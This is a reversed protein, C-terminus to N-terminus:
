PQVPDPKRPTVVRYMRTGPPNPDTVVRVHNTARAVLDDLKTWAGGVIGTYEVTYTKNSKAGFWLTTVGNMELGDVRLYSAPDRPDTGSNYEDLNSVKDGDLDLRADALNNTNLGQAVEYADPLGDRDFDALVTLRFLSSGLGITPTVTNKVVARYDGADTLQINSLVFFDKRIDLVNSVIPTSGKRWEFGFPPPGGRIEASFTVRGGEPASQGVPQQVWAPTIIVGLVAVQSTLPGVGDTVVVTYNGADEEQANAVTLMRNTAGPIEVDNFRWQYTIPTSSTATVSFTVTVGPSVNTSQPQQTIEAPILLTLTANSSLIAAVPNGVEVSYVGQQALQVNPLSLISNTASGLNLGNFRWQYTFPGEGGPTVSFFVDSYAVATRNQPQQLITPPGLVSLTASASALSGHDDSVLVSYNGSDGTQVNTLTLFSNTAGSINVVNRRWQYRLAGTGAAFVTFSVDGGVDSTRSQPQTLITLPQNVRLVAGTSIAFGAANRVVVAYEGAGSAPVSALVFNVNTAGSIAAGNFRWQYLLPATGTATVDFMANAGATVTQGQPQVTIAPANLRDAVNRPNTGDLFEEYNTRGDSDADANADGPSNQDFSNATEYSDPMGDADTDTFGAGPVNARGPTPAGGKWNVPDNGYEHPRRRQLADGAGDPSVPWPPTDSYSVRDVQIYPVLGADPGPGQPADPRNLKIEEASNDLKGLYPGHIPVSVPLGYTARFAALAAANTAPNFSVVLLYGRAPLTVNTPFNFDAGGRLHWTNTAFAPDFLPVANSTINFLEIFEDNVNDNTGGIDPPHYAIENIVVPGVLPASNPLGTGTRFAAVTGPSDVGFTRQKMATFDRGVSTEYRGFSVGNAAPGFDVSSRYGTLNGAGAAASLYVQDGNASSLSFPVVPNNSNFAQEYFVQFGQPAVVTGNPIRYKKFDTKADSLFWGGIDVPQTTRNFVEIADELPDDTHSIVENVIVTGLADGGARGPSGSAEPSARWNVPDNLNASPDIAELSSGSGDAEIPWAGSTGYTVSLFVVGNTDSLEITEGANDLRGGYNGPALNLGATNYRSAFATQSKVVVLFQKPGLTTPGFTYDIGATFRVGTLDLAGNGLNVLEVFEYDSGGVPNYMIESIRLNERLDSTASPDILIAYDFETKIRQATDTALFMGAKAGASGAPLGVSHLPIWVDNLFQEFFLTNGARRIRIEVESLNLVTTRLLISPAAATIRRVNLANGDEIGFVYRVASGSEIIEVLAGAFYDGFVQAKLGVKTLFAWDTLQPLARWVLPYQPSAAALPFARDNLVQLVLNGPEETLSYYSGAFHNRRLSVNQLNWFRELRTDTFPTFGDPAYVAAERQILTSAAGADRGTVAFLYLGPHPFIATAQDLQSVNLQADAPAVSWTFALPTGDPDYSASADLELADLVSVHWSKPSAKLVMVPPANGTKTVTITDTHLIVGNEDVANLTLLNAGTRLVINTVTWTNENVWFSSAEPHGAVDVRFVRLPATGTLSATNTGVSFPNGSNSTIDYVTTRNAGLHTYAPGERNVFWSQYTTSVDYQSSAAEEAALWATMRASNRAFNELLTALYHKYLRLNYPKAIYPPFGPVGAYFAAATNGFALDSDWHFFMFRGDTSRRYFYGNKGRDRTFSDWDDIYGRIATMKMTAIPDILREIAPQTYTNETITKFFNILSTYDYENERTRKMWESHYRGPNDTGKYSWDSNRQSRNWDDQFWWEDDIRYLEGQAGNEYVRDLLDNGLPEVEERLASGGNNVEVLFYEHENAPHGFWYLWQRVIRNHHRSGGGADNDYSLKEKGRFLQDKPLKFKGRSLDGGRTWPSGSNRVECNYLIDRENVILTMNYYHNSLRPFNYGNPPTSADGGSLDAIDLASVVFRMRRLDGLARPTAVVYMAPRAPGAKPLQSSQGNGQAVVYFQVIQGNAGYETLQASYVGDGAVQDGSSVGDDFMPKSAWAGSATNNDLRHFLLVQPSAVPSRIAATVRVTQGAAPVAPSHLLNDVQPAPQPIFRSNAAGPTGLNKPVTLSINTAISHDWTQVILRSAGAVWRADFSIEYTQGATLGTADIEVRNPRNDGHGDAVLNLQGANIFSAYHTGQALWGSASSGDTSMVSGNQIVNAGAGNQRLLINNLIVHSDGVLHLHLEKYDTAAGLTNLQQFASSYSHHQFTSKNTENSDAWASALHNEMAPHRLEMSSGDGNCLNPWNGGPLYDVEDALNGWADVLRVLEGNNALQGDFNGIVPITGYADRMWDVDAAVVLYAGAALMTNPPFTFSVGDAFRWGSLDAATTGRNYLEIFEAATEDSPADYMIENIVVNTNRPPNNATDRTALAATYWENSGNPFAQVSDGNISQAFVGAWLVTNASNVLFLTAEGGSVPFAFDRSAYGNAAVSGTLAVKNSFDNDSVLFLGDLLLSPSGTNHFEVWDVTNTPSFHVENVRLTAALSSQSANPANRTPETFLFWSAGGTPKRGISRGDLPMTTNVANIVTVGDAATLYVKVPSVVPLGSEAFGVSALGGAPVIVDTTVRFKQLNAPDDSFYHNRLNIASGGPNFFEVFGVGTAGPLVENIALSPQSPVSVKFRAGFVVDSSTAGVQHVEVALVNTGVILGTGSATIVNLEEAADTVTRNAVTTFTVGGAAVGSRGIETGNLYYVAGDDLIQDVSITVGSLSGNYVFRTRLYFTLQNSNYLATQIGPAPLAANEFGLLGPGQRWGSDDFGPTRWTTGLDVNLDHLRWTDGYNVFPIGAALNVEPNAIATEAQEVPETGPTGLRRLSATWNHWDDIKRDPNRLVLTHGAGDAALPWKGRDNYAMTCLVVSNKDKLTVREGANDLSGTWPGYIRISPAIGYAARLTAEDVPSLLIREFPKLFTRNSDGPAFAPFDYDVGDRLRWEAMDFPTATNNYVEIYEPLTGPPHYMIETFVVQEARVAATAIMLAAVCTSLRLPYKM